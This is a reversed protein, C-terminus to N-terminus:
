PTSDYAYAIDILVPVNTGDHQGRIEVDVTADAQGQASFPNTVVVLGSLTIGIHVTTGAAVYSNGSLRKTLQILTNAHTATEGTIDINAASIATPDIGKIQAVPQVKQVAIREPWISPALPKPKVEQNGFNLTFDEPKFVTGAIKGIALEWQGAVLSAPLAVGHTIVLPANTGDTIGHVMFSLTADSGRSAQLTGLMMLGNAFVYKSHDTSNVDTLCDGRNKGYVTVGPAGVGDIFCQGAIGLVSFVEAISKTTIAAVPAFQTIAQSEDYLGGSDDAVTAINSQIDISVISGITADLDSSTLPDVADVVVGGSSFSGM